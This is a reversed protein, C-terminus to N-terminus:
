SRGRISKNHYMQGDAIKIIDEVNMGPSIEALGFSARIPLTHNKFKFKAFNLQQQIFRTRTKGGEFESHRLLLAFEDGGLRAAYDTQRISSLLCDAVFKLKADGVAHGYTDNIRKFRDLDIYVFLSPEDHREAMALANELEQMIGRRNLLGTLPDTSTMVELKEIRENQEAITQEAEVVFDLIEALIDWSKTSLKKGSVKFNMLLEDTLKNIVNAPVPDQPKLPITFHNM